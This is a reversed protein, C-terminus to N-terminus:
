QREEIARDFADVDARSMLRGIWDECHHLKDEPIENGQCEGGPNCGAAWAASAAEVIDAGPVICCGLFQSGIPEDPDCFSLWWLKM